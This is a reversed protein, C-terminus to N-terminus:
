CIQIEIRGNLTVVRVAPNHPVKIPTIVLRSSSIQTSSPSASSTGSSTIQSTSTPLSSSSSLTSLIDSSTTSSLLSDSTTSLIISTTQTVFTSSDPNTPPQVASSTSSSMPCIQVNVQNTDMTVSAGIAFAGGNLVTATNLTISAGALINGSFATGTGLTASTGIQWFVNCPLGGGTMLVTSGTATTLATGIQFYWADNSSGTGALTLIGTIAASTSLSYTGPALSMGGLDGLLPIAGGLGALTNYASQADSLAVTAQNGIFETGSYTGPPFGTISSGTTGIDGTITTAGTSTISTHALVGFTAASGLNIESGLVGHGLVTLFFVLKM